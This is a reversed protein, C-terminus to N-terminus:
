RYYAWRAHFHAGLPMFAVLWVWTGRYLLIYLECVAWLAMGEGQPM